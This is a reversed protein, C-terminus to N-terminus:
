LTLVEGVADFLILAIKQAESITLDIGVRENRCDFDLSIRGDELTYIRVESEKTDLIKEFQRM